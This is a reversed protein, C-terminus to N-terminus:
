LWIYSLTDHTYRFAIHFLFNYDYTATIGIHYDAQLAEGQRALGKKTTLKQHIGTTFTGILGNRRSAQSTTDSKHGLDTSVGETTTGNFLISSIADIYAVDGSIGIVGRTYSKDHDVRLTFVTNGHGRACIGVEGSLIHVMGLLSNSRGVDHEHLELDRKNGDLIHGVDGLLRALEHHEIRSRRVRQGLREEAVKVEEDGILALSLLEGTKGDGIHFTYGASGIRKTGLTHGINDDGESGATGEDLLM